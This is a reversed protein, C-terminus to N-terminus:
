GQIKQYKKRHKEQNQNCFLRYVAFEKRYNPGRWYINLSNNDHGSTTTPSMTMTTQLCKDWVNAKALFSRPRTLSRWKTSLHVLAFQYPSRKTTVKFIHLLPVKGAEWHELFYWLLLETVKACHNIVHLIDDPCLSMFLWYSPVFYVGNLPICYVIRLPGQLLLYLIM